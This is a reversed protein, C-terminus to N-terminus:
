AKISVCGVAVNEWDLNEGKIARDLTLQKNNEAM